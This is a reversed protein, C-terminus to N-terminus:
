RRTPRSVSGAGRGGRRSGAVTRALRAVLVEMVQEAPMGTRGKLDVDADALLRVSRSIGESGLRRSQELAKKAPFTSGKMGLLSAAEREDGIGAGDLRLMREVHSTLTVMVQLPHRGGGAMMRRVVSVARTVDGKDIADTLDWPPVGGAGGLYPEVEDAGLRAGAGHVAELVTLIGGLRAVDEGLHDAVLKRADPALRVPAEALRDDLWSQRQRAQGPPDTNVVTGGAAKVAESLKKSLPQANAGPTSPPSWVLVLHTDPAPDALYGLLPDLAKAGYRALNRGVVVRDGFMSLTGAAMVIEGLDVEDASLEDLVEGRDADGVLDRVLATVAEELLVPDKGSLLHIGAM